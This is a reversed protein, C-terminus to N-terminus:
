EVSFEALMGEAFHPPGEEAGGVPILCVMFYDGPELETLAAGEGGPPVVTATVFEGPGSESAAPDDLLEEASRTEGDQKRFMVIEHAEADSENTLAFATTGAPVTAPVGEYAYDVATVAVQEFECADLSGAVVGMYSEFTEDANFPAADGDNLAEVAPTMDGVVGSLTSPAHEAVETWLPVLEGAAAEIDEPTSTEDLNTSLAAANFDVLSSCFAESDGAAATDEGADGSEPATAGDDDDDGCAAVGLTLTIAASAALLRLTTTRM